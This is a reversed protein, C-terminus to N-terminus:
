RVGIFKIKGSALNGSSSLFKVYNIASTSKYTSSLINYNHHPSDGFTSIFGYSTKYNTTSNVNNVVMYGSFNEGTGTGLKVASDDPTLRGISNSLAVKRSPTGIHSSGDFGRAVLTEAYNSGTDATGSTGFYYNINVSDTATVIESFEIIIKNYTSSFGTFEVSADNSITTTNLLVPLDINTSDLQLNGGSPINITDQSITTM